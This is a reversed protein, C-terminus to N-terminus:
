MKRLYKGKLTHKITRKSVTYRTLVTEDQGVLFFLSAFIFDRLYYSLWEKREYSLLAAEVIYYVLSMNLFYTEM